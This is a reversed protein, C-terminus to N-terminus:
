ESLLWSRNSYNNSGFHQQSYGGCPASSYGCQGRNGGRGQSDNNLPAARAFEAQQVPAEPRYGEYISPHKNKTKKQGTGCRRAFQEEDPLATDTNLVVQMKPNKKQEMKMEDRRGMKLENTLQQCEAEALESNQLHMCFECDYSFAIISPREDHAEDPKNLWAWPIKDRLESSAVVDLAALDFSHFAKAVLYLFKSSFIAFDDKTQDFKVVRLLLLTNNPNVKEQFHAEFLDAM